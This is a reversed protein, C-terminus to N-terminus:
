WIWSTFSDGKTYMNIQRLISVIASEIWSPKSVIESHVDIDAFLSWILCVYIFSVNDRNFPTPIM